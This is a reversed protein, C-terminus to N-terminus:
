LTLGGIFKCSLRFSFLDSTMIRTSSPQHQREIALLYDCIKRLAKEVIQAERENFVNCGRSADFRCFTDAVDRAIDQQIHRHLVLYEHRTLLTPDHATKM